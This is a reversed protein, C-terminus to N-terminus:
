SPSRYGLEVLVTQLSSLANEVDSLHVWGLHAIRFLKGDLKGQGGALVVQFGENMRSLLVKATIGEPLCVATVSDSAHAPDALLSLGLARVGKRTYEAIAHHRAYVAPLGEALIMSLSESLAYLLSVAPTYPTQSKDQYKKAAAFDWYHRPMRAIKNAQWARGNMSVLALGPPVMLAKQSATVVVDVGWEDTPLPLAALSSVADVILLAPTQRVVKAIAEVDNAVGTSTENHTLLVAKISADAQLRQAVAEPQAAQGWPFDLHIVDAGFDSAIRAFRDGFHGISVSLVRDGPSLTNVISAELGGTGSGPFVLVDGTTGFVLRLGTLVEELLARFEPGRHNIMPKGMAALVRPPVPTPGPIRLNTELLNV